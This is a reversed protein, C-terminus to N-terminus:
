KSKKNYLKGKGKRTRSNNKTRQGRLTIGTQSTNRTPMRHGDIEQHELQVESRLEGEVRLTKLSIFNQHCHLEDDNWRSVKKTESIGANKTIESSTSVLEMSTHLVWLEEKTKPLDIGAFKAM